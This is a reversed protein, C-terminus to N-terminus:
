QRATVMLHGRAVTHATTTFGLVAPTAASGVGVRAIDLATVTLFYHHLSGAPPAAGLHQRIGGDNALQLASKPLETSNPEGAGSPLSTTTAPLDAVVWHWFGSGTPADVDYMTVVFSKTELPFGSWNLGPSQDRGGPVDNLGSMQDRSLLQGEAM